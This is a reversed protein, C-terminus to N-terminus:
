LARNSQCRIWTISGLMIPQWSWRRRSPWVATPATATSASASFAQGAARQSASSGSGAYARSGNTAAARSASLATGSLGNAASRAESVSGGSAEAAASSVAAGSVGSAEATASVSASSRGAAQLRSPPWRCHPASYEVLAAGGCSAARASILGEGVVTTNGSSLANVLTPWCRKCPHELQPRVGTFAEAALM